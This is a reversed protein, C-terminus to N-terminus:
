GSDALPAECEWRHRGESAFFGRLSDVLFAPLLLHPAQSESSDSSDIGIMQCSRTQEWLHCCSLGPLSRGQWRADALPRPTSPEEEAVELAACRGGQRQASLQEREGGM